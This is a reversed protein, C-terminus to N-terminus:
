GEDTGDDEGVTDDGCNPCYDLTLNEGFNRIGNAIVSGVDVIVSFRLGCNECTRM